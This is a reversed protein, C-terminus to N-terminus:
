YRCITQHSSFIAVKGRKQPSIRPWGLYIRMNWSIELRKLDSSSRLFAMGTTTKKTKKTARSMPTPELKWNDHFIWRCLFCCGVRHCGSTGGHKKLDMLFQIPGFGLPDKSFYTAISCILYESKKPTRSVHTRNSIEQKLTIYKPTWIQWRETGNNPHIPSMSNRLNQPPHKHFISCWTMFCETSPPWLFGKSIIVEKFFPGSIRPM